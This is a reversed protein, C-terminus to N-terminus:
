IVRVNPVNKTIFSFNSTAQINSFRSTDGPTCNIVDGSSLVAAIGLKGNLDLLAPGGSDGSCTNSGNGDYLADVFNSSVDSIKMQGSRLVGTTNNSENQNETVGYGYINILEGAVPARSGVIPLTPLNVPSSLKLLALDNFVAKQEENASVNPHIIVSSAVVSVGAASVTAQIPSDFFCHAATLVWDSAIMTGSCTGVRSDPLVLTIEVVPSNNESCETGTIIRTNLGLASCTNRSLSGGNDTSDNDDSGGKTCSSILCTLTILLFISIFKM